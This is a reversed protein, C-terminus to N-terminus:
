KLDFEVLNYEPYYTGLVRYTDNENWSCVKWIMRLMPISHVVFDWSEPDYQPVRFSEPIKNKCLQIALAKKEPNLLFRIYKPNGLEIITLHFIRIRGSKKCLSVGTFTMTDNQM